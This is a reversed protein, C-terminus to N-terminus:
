DKLLGALKNWRKLNISEALEPTITFDEKWNVKGSAFDLAIQSPDLKKPKGNPGQEGTAGDLQPMDAREPATKAAPLSKYAHAIACAILHRLHCNKMTKPNKTKLESNELIAEINLESKESAYLDTLKEFLSKVEGIALKEKAWAMASDSNVFNNIWQTGMCPNDLGEGGPKKVGIKNIIETAIAEMSAKYVNIQQGNPSGGGSSPLKKGVPLKQSIGVQLAALAKQWKEGGFDFNIGGLTNTPKGFAFQQSWRHHGDLIYVESDSKKYFNVQLFRNTSNKNELAGEVSAWDTLPFAVSNWIFIERQTPIGKSIEFTATSTSIVDDQDGNRLFDKAAQTQMEPKDLITHIKALNPTDKGLEEILEDIVALIKDNASRNSSSTAELIVLTRKIIEQLERNRKM